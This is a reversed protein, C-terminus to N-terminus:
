KFQELIKKPKIKNQDFGLESVPIGLALGLVQPYHLVPINLNIKEKMRLELQGMEYQLYCAPCITVLADVNLDKLEELKRRLLTISVKDNIGRAYNGCCLHKTIYNVSEAGTVEILEDMKEPEIPNDFNMYSSPRVIHCGVHVAFRLGNLNNKVNEKIRELGVDNYLVHIIHKINLKGSVSLNFKETLFKNIEERKEKDEKIIKNAHILSNACGNCMTVIDNGINEALALNYSAMRLWTEESISEFPFGCCVFNELYKLEIGLKEFVKKTSLEYNLEKAPIVCGLYLTYRM